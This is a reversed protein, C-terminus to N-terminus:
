GNAHLPAPCPLEQRQGASLRGLDLLQMVRLAQAAPVPNPGLGLIADRLQVYYGLYNGRENPLPRTTLTASDGEALTLQGDQPDNGWAQLRQADPRQGAKLAEEQVDAGHKVYSGRSGHLAFRPGPVACLMSAHLHVRLGSDYRLTAHFFDDTRAGPRLAAIDAQLAAPWGFLQVAQDLLHPALDMWVGGGPVDAERWRQRVEPRYRDFHLAAERLSGLTGDALLQKVRLFDGDWRRNHFVSLVRQHRQALAVLDQAQATDLTFPKDVVVHRGARLAAAALAHHTDNPTPVVVLDVDPQEILAEAQAHVVVGPGLATHVKHPQSSSVAALALGPTAQILPAHFTQSAYGFGLLGVRLPSSNV